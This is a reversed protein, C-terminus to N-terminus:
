SGYAEQLEGPSWDDLHADDQGREACTGCVGVIGTSLSVTSEAPQRHCIGCPDSEVAWEADFRDLFDGLRYEVDETGVAIALHDRWDQCPPEHIAM